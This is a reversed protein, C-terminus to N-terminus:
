GGRGPRGWLEPDRFPDYQNQEGDGGGGAPAPSRLKIKLQRLEEEARQKELTKWRRHCERKGRGSGEALTDSAAGEASKREGAGGDVDVPTAKGPSSPAVTSLTAASVDAAASVHGSISRWREGREMAEPYKALAERLLEDELPTWSSRDM